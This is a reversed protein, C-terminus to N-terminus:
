KPNPPLHTSDPKRAKNWVGLVLLLLSLYMVVLHSDLMAAQLMQVGQYFGNEGSGTPPGPQLVSRAVASSYFLVVHAIMLWILIGAFVRVWLRQLVL